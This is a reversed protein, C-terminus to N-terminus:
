FRVDQDILLTCWSVRKMCKVFILMHLATIAMVTYKSLMYMTGIIIVIVGEFDFFVCCFLLVFTSGTRGLASGGDGNYANYKSFSIIIFSCWDIVRQFEYTRRVVMCVYPSKM